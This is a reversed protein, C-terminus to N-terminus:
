HRLLEKLDLARPYMGAVINGFKMINPLPTGNEPGGGSRVRVFPREEAIARRREERGRDSGM